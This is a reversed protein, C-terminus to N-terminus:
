LSSRHVSMNSCKLNPNDEQARVMPWSSLTTYENIGYTRENIIGSLTEPLCPCLFVECDKVPKPLQINSYWFDCFREAAILQAHCKHNKRSM